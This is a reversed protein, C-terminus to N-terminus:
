YLPSPVNDRMSQARTIALYEYLLLRFVILLNITFLFKYSNKSYMCILLLLLRLLLQCCPQTLSAIIISVLVM